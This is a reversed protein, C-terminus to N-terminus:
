KQQPLISAAVKALDKAETTQTMLKEKAETKPSLDRLIERSHIKL